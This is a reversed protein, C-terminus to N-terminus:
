TFRASATVLYRSMAEAVLCMGPSIRSADHNLVSAIKHWGDIRRLRIQGSAVLSFLLVLAVDEGPLSGRTKVAPTLMPQTSSATSTMAGGFPRLAEVM